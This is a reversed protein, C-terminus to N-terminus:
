KPKEPFLLTKYTAQIKVEKFISHVKMIKTNEIKALELKPQLDMLEKKM